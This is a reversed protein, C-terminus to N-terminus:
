SLLGLVGKGVAYLLVIPAALAVWPHASVVRYVAGGFEAYRRPADSLGRLARKASSRTLRGKRDLLALRMVARRTAPRDDPMLALAVSLALQIPVAM